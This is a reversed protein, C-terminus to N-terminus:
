NPRRYNTQQKGIFYHGPFGGAVAFEICYDGMPFQLLKGTNTLVSYPYMIGM